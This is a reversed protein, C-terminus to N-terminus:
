ALLTGLYTRVESLRSLRSRTTLGGTRSEAGIVSPLWSDLNLPQESHERQRAVHSSGAPRQEPQTRETTVGDALSCTAWLPKKPVQHLSEVIISEFDWVECFSCFDGQSLSTM